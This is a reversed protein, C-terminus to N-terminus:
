GESVQEPIPVPAKNLSEMKTLSNHYLSSGCQSSYYLTAIILSTPMSLLALFGGGIYFLTREKFTQQANIVIEVKKVIEIVKQDFIFGVVFGLAFFNHHLYFLPVSIALQFFVELAIENVITTKISEYTKFIENTIKNLLSFNYPAIM